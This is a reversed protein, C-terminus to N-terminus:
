QVGLFKNASFVLVLCLAWKLMNQKGLSINHTAWYSGLSAGLVVMLIMGPLEQAIFLQGSHYLGALGALSNVVIFPAVMGATKNLGAWGLLLILPSLYVGGGVGTIGSLFGVGLGVFFILYFNVKVELRQSEYLDKRWLLTLVALLLTCGILFKLTSINIHLLGGLYAAPISGLVLPLFIKMEFFGRKRFVFFAWTAVFLNLLLATPRMLSVSMGMWMMMATYGSAGGHGVAAYIMAILGFGLLWLNLVDIM